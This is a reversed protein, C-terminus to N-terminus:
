LFITSEDFLRMSTRRGANSLFLMLSIILNSFLIGADMLHTIWVPSSYEAQAWFSNKLTFQQSCYVHSTKQITNLLHSDHVTFINMMVTEHWGTTLFPLSPQLIYYSNGETNMVVEGIYPKGLNPESSHNIIDWGNCNAHHWKLLFLDQCIVM